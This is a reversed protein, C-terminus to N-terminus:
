NRNGALKLHIDVEPYIHRNELAPDAAYNMGWKTRDLKFTADVLLNNEQLDIKAPFV